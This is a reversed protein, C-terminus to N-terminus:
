VIREYPLYVPDWVYARLRERLTADDVAEATGDAIAQKAVAEAIVLSVKRCDAIPPLLPADPDAVTPSLGALAKASAMIMADSVRTTRSVLIGLALGPFIFSNNVQSIRVQKGKVEVPPFPSGTGVLVRGDSWRLLDEPTAEAKSTPNSLPFIVPRPTHRAMERVINETFAGTQASVGVLVTVGANCVVDFL